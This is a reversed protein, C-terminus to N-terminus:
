GERGDAAQPANEPASSPALAAVIRQAQEIWDRPVYYLTNSHISIGAIRGVLKLADETAQQRAVLRALDNLGIQRLYDATERQQQLFFADVWDCMPQQQESV